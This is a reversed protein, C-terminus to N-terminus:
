RLNIVGHASLCTDWWGGDRISGRKGKVPGKCGAPKLIDGTARDIFCYISRTFHGQVPKQSHHWPTESSCWVGINKAGISAVLLEQKDYYLDHEPNGQVNPYNAVYYARRKANVDTLFAALEELLVPSNSLEIM